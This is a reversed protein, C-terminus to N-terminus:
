ERGLCMDIVLKGGEAKHYEAVLDNIKELPFTKIKARVGHEGAFKLMDRLGRNRGTLSGLVRIDRYVLDKASVNFGNEPFSIVIMTGHNRLLQVGYDFAAQVEPLVFVADVGMQAALQGAKEDGISKLVEESGQSRADVITVNKREDEELGKVIQTLLALAKKGTDIALVKKGLKAAFQVGLHGLGGGAGSIAIIKADRVEPKHLATWITLGACMLPATEVCTLTDPM